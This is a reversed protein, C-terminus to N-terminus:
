KTTQIIRYIVRCHEIIIIRMLLQRDYEQIGIQDFGATELIEEIADTSVDWDEWILTSTLARVMGATAIKHYSGFGTGLNLYLYKFNYKVDAHM